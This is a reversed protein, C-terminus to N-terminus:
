LLKACKRINANAISEVGRAPTSGDRCRMGLRGNQVCGHKERGGKLRSTRSMADDDRGEVLRAIEAEVLAHQRSALPRITRPGSACQGTRRDSNGGDKSQRRRRTRCRMGCSDHPTISTPLLQIQATADSLLEKRTAAALREPTTAQYSGRRM